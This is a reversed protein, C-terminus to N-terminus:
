RDLLADLRERLETAKPQFLNGSQPEEESPNILADLGSLAEDPRGLKLLAQTEYWLAARRVGYESSTGLPHLVRVATVPDGTLYESIGLYVRVVEDDPQDDALLTLLARAMEYRGEELYALADDLEKSAASDATLEVDTGRPRLRVVQEFEDTALEALAQRMEADPAPDGLPVIPASWLLVGLLAALALSAALRLGRTAWSPAPSAPSTSAPHPIPETAATRESRSGTVALAGLAEHRHARLEVMLDFTASCEHCEDLHDLSSDAQEPATDGHLLALLQETDLHM